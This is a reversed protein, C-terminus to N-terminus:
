SHTQSSRRPPPTAATGPAAPAPLTPTSATCSCSSPPTPCRPTAHPSPSPAHNTGPHIVRARAACRGRTCRHLKHAQQGKPPQRRRRASRIPGGFTGLEGRARARTRRPCVPCPAAAPRRRRAAGARPGGRRVSLGGHKPLAMGTIPSFCQRCRVPGRMRPEGPAASPRAAVTAVLRGASAGARCPHRLELAVERACGFSGGSGAACGAAVAAPPLDGDGGDGGNSCAAGNPPAPPAPMPLLAAPDLTQRFLAPAALPADLRPLARRALHTSAAAYRQTEDAARRRCRRRCGAAAPAAGLRAASRGAAGVGRWRPRGRRPEGLGGHGHPRRRHPHGQGVGRRAAALGGAPQGGSRSPRPLPGRCRAPRPRLDRRAGRPRRAARRPRGWVAAAGRARARGGRRRGDDGKGGGGPWRAEFWEGFDPNLDHWVTRTRDNLPPRARKCVCVCEWGRGPLAGAGVGAAAAGGAAAGTTSSPAM